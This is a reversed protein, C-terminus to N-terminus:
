DSKRGSVILLTVQRRKIWSPRLFLVMDYLNHLMGGFCFLNNLFPLIDKKNKRKQVLDGQKLAQCKHQHGIKTKSVKLHKPRTPATLSLLAVFYLHTSCFVCVDLLHIPSYCDFHDKLSVEKYCSFKSHFHHSLPVAAIEKINLKDNLLLERERERKKIRPQM